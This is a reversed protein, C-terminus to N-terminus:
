VVSKRDKLRRASVQRGSRSTLDGVWLTLADATSVVFAFRAGSPSWTLNGVGAGSPLAMAIPTAPGGDISMISLGRAPNQRSPGSTRPDLRIGAVRYEPAAIEAISPLGPRELLLLHKRDPTVMVSPLAPADLIQAVATPPQRYGDQAPLADPRATGVVLALMWLVGNAVGWRTRGPRSRSPVTHPIM